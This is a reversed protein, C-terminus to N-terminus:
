IHASSNDFLFNFHIILLDCLLDCERGGRGALSMDWAYIHHLPEFGTLRKLEAPTRSNAM